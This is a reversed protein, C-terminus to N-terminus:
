FVRGSEPGAKSSPPVFRHFKDFTRAPKTGVRSHPRKDALCADRLLRKNVRNKDLLSAPNQFLNRRQFPLPAAARVAQPFKQVRNNCFANAAHQQEAQGRPLVFDSARGIVVFASHLLGDPCHFLLIRLDLNNCVNTQAFVGAVAVAANQVSFRHVVVRRQGHQRFRRKRMNTRARIENCRGIHHVSSDTGDAARQVLVSKGVACNHSVGDLVSGRKVPREAVRGTGRRREAVASAVLHIAM